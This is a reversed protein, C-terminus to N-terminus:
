EDGRENLGAAIAALYGAREERSTQSWAEFAERAAAVARDADEQSCAPITGIVEETTPNVVEIPESGSPEVWEGDIFIRDKVQAEAATAM